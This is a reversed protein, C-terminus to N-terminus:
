ATIGSGRFSPDEQDARPLRKRSFASLVSGWTMRSVFVGASYEPPMPAKSTTTSSPVDGAFIPGPRKTSTLEVGPSTGISDSPVISCGM